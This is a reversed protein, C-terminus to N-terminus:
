IQSEAQVGVMDEFRLKPFARKLQAVRRVSGTGIVSGEPLEELSKYELGQKIVLADRPDERELMVALEFEDPIRTPVDKVCNVILDLSGDLLAAELEDTWLSKTPQNRSFPSLLHLPTSQNRDGLTALTQINFTYSPSPHLSRLLSKVLETQILALNSKRTGLTITSEPIASESVTSTSM